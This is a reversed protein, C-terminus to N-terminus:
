LTLADPAPLMRAVSLESTKFACFRLVRSAGYGSSDITATGLAANRTGGAAGGFGFVSFGVGVTTGGAATGVGLTLGRGGSKSTDMVGAFFVFTKLQTSKETGTASM